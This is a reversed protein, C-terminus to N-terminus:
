LLCVVGAGAHPIAVTVNRLINGSTESVIHDVSLDCCANKSLSCDRLFESVGHESVIYDKSDSRVAEAVGHESFFECRANPTPSSDPPKNKSGRPDNRGMPSPDPPWIESGGDRGGKPPDPPKNEKGGPGEGVDGWEGRRHSNDIGSLSCRQLVHRYDIGRPTCWKLAHRNDIGQALNQGCQLGHPITLRWM